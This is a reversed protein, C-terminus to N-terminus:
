SVVARDTVRRWNTGDSFAMTYGGTEDSVYIHHSAWSSATPLTAVTYTATGFPGAVSATGANTIQFLTPNSAGFFDTIGAAARKVVWNDNILGCFWSERANTDVGSLDVFWNSALGFYENSSGDVFGVTRVFPAAANRDLEWGTGRMFVTGDSTVGFNAQWGYTTAFAGIPNAAPSAVWVVPVGKLNTEGPIDRDYGFDIWIAHKTVDVRNFAATAVDYTANILIGPSDGYYFLHEWGWRLLDPLTRAAFKGYADARSLWPFIRMPNM